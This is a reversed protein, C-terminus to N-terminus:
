SHFPLLSVIEQHQGELISEFSVYIGPVMHSVGWECKWHVKGMVPTRDALGVFDIWITDHLQYCTTQATFFFCGSGSVYMTFTKESAPGFEPSTSLVANLHLGDRNDPYLIEPEFAACVAAFEELNRLNGHGNDLMLLRILGRGADFNVTASPMTKLSDSIKVKEMHNARVNLNIDIVIGKYACRRLEEPIEGLRELVTCDAYGALASLYANKRTVDKVALIIRPKLPADINM